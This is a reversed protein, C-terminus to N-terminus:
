VGFGCASANLHGMWCGFSQIEWCLWDPVPEIVIIVYVKLQEGKLFVIEAKLLQLCDPPWKTEFSFCVAQKIDIFNM